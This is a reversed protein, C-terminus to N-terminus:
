HEPMIQYSSNYKESITTEGNKTVERTWFMRLGALRLNTIADGNPYFPGALKVERGDRTGFFNVRLTAEKVVTQILIPFNTDNVFKLDASGPYITADLGPPSYYSVKMSHPRQDTIPLGADLATRFFTTSVQCVGGGVEPTIDGKKIILEQRYGNSISILGLSEIFSFEENPAIIKGNLKAAAIRINHQRNAPSGKYNTIAEGVLERIGDNKLDDAIKIPAALIRFPIKIELDNNALANSLENFLKEVDVARGSKAVGDFKIAGDLERTIAVDRPLEATLPNLERAVFQEIADKKLIVKEDDFDFWALRNDLKIEFREYETKKLILKQTVIQALEDRFKELENAFIKPKIPESKLVIKKNSLRGSNKKITDAIKTFDTTRGNREPLVELENKENLFVRADTAGFELNPFHALLIRRLRKENLSTPLIIEGFNLIEKKLIGIKKSVAFILDFETPFIEITENEFEFVISRLTFNLARTELEDIADDATVLSYEANAIRVGFPLREALRNQALFYGGELILFAGFIIFFPLFQRFKSISKKKM